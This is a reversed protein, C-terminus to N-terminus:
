LRLHGDWYLPRYCNFFGQFSGAFNNYSAKRAPQSSPKTYKMAKNLDTGGIAKLRRAAMRGNSVADGSFAAPTTGDSRYFNYGFVNEENLGAFSVENKEVAKLTWYINLQFPGVDWKNIDEPHGNDNPAPHTEFSSENMWTVALLAASIRESESIKKIVDAATKNFRYLTPFRRLFVV